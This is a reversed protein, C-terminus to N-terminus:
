PTAGPAPPEAQAPLAIVRRLSGAPGGPSAVQMQVEIARPWRDAQRDDLPWRDTWDEGLFRWRAASVGPLLLQPQPGVFRVLSGGVLAYRIPISPGGAGPATRTFSVEGGGGKINGHAVQDLDSAIVFMARQLQALRELRVDTRGQVNIIGTVLALGAVAILGFLGLSIM